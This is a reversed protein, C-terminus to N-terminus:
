SCSQELLTTRDRYVYPLHDSTTNVDYALIQSLPALIAAIQM